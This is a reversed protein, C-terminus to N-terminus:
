VIKGQKIRGRALLTSCYYLIKAKLIEEDGAAGTGAARPSKSHEKGCKHPFAPPANGGGGKM